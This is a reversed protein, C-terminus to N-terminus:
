AYDFVIAKHLLIKLDCFLKGRDININLLRNTVELLRKLQKANLKSGSILKETVFTRIMALWDSDEQLTSPNVLFVM